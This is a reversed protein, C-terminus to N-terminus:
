EISAEGRWNSLFLGLVRERLAEPVYPISVDLSDVAKEVDCGLSELFNALDDLLALDRPVVRVAGENGGGRFRFGARGLDLRRLLALALPYWPAELAYSFTPEM